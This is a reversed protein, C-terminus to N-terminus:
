RIREWGGYENYYMESGEPEYPQMYELNFVENNTVDIYRLYRGQQVYNLGAQDIDAHGFTNWIPSDIGNDRLDTIVGEGIMVNLIANNEWINTAADYELGLGNVHNYWELTPIEPYIGGESLQYALPRWVGYILMKLSAVRREFSWSQLVIPKGEYQARIKEDWTQKRFVLDDYGNRNFYDGPDRVFPLTPRYGSEYRIINNYEASRDDLFSLNEYIFNDINTQVRIDSYTMGREVLMVELTEYNPIITPEIDASVFAVDIDTTLFQDHYDGALEINSIFETEILEPVFENINPDTEPNMVVPLRKATYFFNFDSDINGIVNTKSLEYESYKSRDISM